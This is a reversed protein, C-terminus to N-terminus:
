SPKNSYKQLYDLIAQREEPQLPPLGRRQLEQEMRAVILQWMAPTLVSPAYLRHCGSCRQQYLHAAPSEPEPLSANCGIGGVLLTLLLILPSRRMVDQVVGMHQPWDDLRLSKGVCQWRGPFIKSGCKSP